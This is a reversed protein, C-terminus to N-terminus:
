AASQVGHASTLAELEPHDKLLMLRGDADVEHQGDLMTFGKMQQIMPLTGGDPLDVWSSDTNAAAVQQMALELLPYYPNLQTEPDDADDGAVMFDQDMHWKNLVLTTSVARLSDITQLVSSLPLDLEQQEMYGLVAVAGVNHLLGVMFSKEPDVQADAMHRALVKCTAAVQTANTWVSEGARLLFGSKFVFMQQVALSIVMNCARTMGMRLLAEEASCIETRGRILASNAAAVLKGALSPDQEILKALQEVGVDARDMLNRVKVAVEPMAPVKISGSHFDAFMQRIIGASVDNIEVDHVAVNVTSTQEAQEVQKRDIRIVLSDQLFKVTGHDGADVFIPKLARDSTDDFVQAKGEAPQLKVKGDVLLFFWNREEFGNVLTGKPVVTRKGGELLTTRQAKGLNELPSIQELRLDDMPAATM